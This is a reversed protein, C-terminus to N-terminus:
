PEHESDLVTFAREGSQVMSIGCDAGRESELWSPARAERGLLRLVTQAVAWSLLPPVANGVQRFRDGVNGHFRYADPFSQLRAAERISIARAQRSDHHIHSYADKSLHAPVTWSPQDPVLKRWKDVFSTEPYPPVFRRELALYEPTGPPPASGTDRLRNLAEQLRTRAIALAAPYRDGPNMRKFTEYDRPTRRIMHDEVTRPVPLGPWSRMIRAFESHPGRAYLATGQGLATQRPADVLHDSLEPLDDLAESVTTASRRARGIEVPLECHQIFPLPTTWEILPRLYGAPLVASHTASPMEPNAGLDDRLGIFFLRERYQPVGYWVANLVAYGVRYGRAALDAAADDAVNRGGTSLMGPVNEMVVALPRWLEAADLFRLYLENRPDGSHGEDTLSDLKARGVRSFGQCPPGGILIDPRGRIVLRDLDLDELNGEDGSVVLPRADPQLRGINQEFTRAATEDVDVASLIECGAAQFGLSFGGAGCFLDVVSV